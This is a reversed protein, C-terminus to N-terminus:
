VGLYIEIQQMLGQKVLSETVKIDTKNSSYQAYVQDSSKGVYLAAGLSGDEGTLDGLGPFSKTESTWPVIQWAKEKNRLVLVYLKQTQVVKSRVWYNLVSVRHSVVLNIIRSKAARGYELGTPATENKIVGCLRWEALVEEATAYDASHRALYNNVQTLEKFEATNPGVNIGDYRGQVKRTPKTGATSTERAFVLMGPGLERSHTESSPDKPDPNSISVYHSVVSVFNNLGFASTPRLSTSLPFSVGPLGSAGNPAGRVPIGLNPLSAGLPAGSPQFPLVTAM